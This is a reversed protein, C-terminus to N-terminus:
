ARAPTLRRRVVVVVAGCAVGVIAGAVVDAPYHVGLYVRSYAIAAAVIWWLLRGAPATSSLVTAGAFANAAHGSPFSPDHPRGGIVKVAPTTKFPRTRHVIPKLVHDALITALLLATALAAFDQWRRARWAIVAGIAVWIMGGRGAASLTWMVGNLAAHRHAVTWARISLDWEHLSSLLHFMM